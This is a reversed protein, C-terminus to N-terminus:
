CGAGIDVIVMGISRKEVAPSDWPSAKTAISEPM